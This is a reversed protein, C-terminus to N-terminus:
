HGHGYLVDAADHLDHLHDAIRAPDVRGWGCYSAIGFDPLYRAAAAARRKFADIGDHVVLGLYVRTDGIDLDKLPAFFADDSEPLVPIHVYDVHRRAAKVCENALRVSVKMDPSTTNPWGRSTGYCFHYGLGVEAPVDVSLDGIDAMHQRWKQEVGVGKPSWPYLPADGALLDMLEHCVDWQILLDRPPIVACMKAVEAKIAARYAASVIPWDALNRFFPAVVAGTTPLAVQFRVGAPMAGEARLRLMTRYSDAAVGAFKLGDFRLSKVDPRVEFHWIRNEQEKIRDTGLHDLPIKHTVLDPHGDFADQAVTYVWNRREGVEGDPVCALWPGLERASSRLVTEVSDLPMSGVLLVNGAPNSSM